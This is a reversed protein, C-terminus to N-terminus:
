YRPPWPLTKRFLDQPDPDANNKRCDDLYRRVALFTPLHFGAAVVRRIFDQSQPLPQNNVAAGHWQSCFDNSMQELTIQARAPLTKRRLARLRSNM